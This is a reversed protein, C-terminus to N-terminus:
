SLWVSQYRLQIEIKNVKFWLNVAIKHAFFQISFMGINTNKPSMTDDKIRRIENADRGTTRRNGRFPVNHQAPILFAM